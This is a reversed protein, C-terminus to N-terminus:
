QNKLHRGVIGTGNWGSLIICNTRHAEKKMLVRQSIKEVHLLAENEM